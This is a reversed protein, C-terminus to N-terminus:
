GLKVVMWEAGRADHYLATTREHKHGLLVRTDVGGQDKYLREALSRLEHFSPPNKGPWKLGSADRAKAFAKAITGHFVPDGPKFGGRHSVHHILYASLVVNERCRRVVEGVSLGLVHLRLDLPICVRSPNRGKIQQVWLSGDRVDKKFQLVAIDGGRQASTIGLEIANVAWPALERTAVMEQAKAYIVKFEDWTLRARKVEAAEVEILRAPNSGAPIVGKAEAREFVDFLFRRMTQAMFIKGAKVWTDDIVDSIVKTDVRKITKEGILERVLTLHHKKQRRTNEKYKRKDIIEADYRDLWSGVTDAAGIMRDVLGLDNRTSAVHNNAARAERFARVKDRGLGYQTGSQPDRYIFYGDRREYLNDPFSRKRISRPRAM